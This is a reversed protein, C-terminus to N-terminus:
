KCCCRERRVEAYGEKGKRQWKKGGYVLVVGGLRGECVEEGAGAEWARRLGAERRGLREEWGLIKRVKRRGALAERERVPGGKGERLWGGGGLATRGRM